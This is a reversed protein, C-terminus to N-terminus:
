YYLFIFMVVFAVDSGVVAINVIRGVVVVVVVCSGVISEVSIGVDTDIVNSVVGVLLVVFRLFFLVVVNGLVLIVNIEVVVVDIGVFVVVDVVVVNGICCVVVIPFSVIM